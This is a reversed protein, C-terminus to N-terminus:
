VDSLSLTSLAMAHSVAKLKRRVLNKKLQSSIYRVIRSLFLSDFAFYETDSKIIPSSLLLFPIVLWGVSNPKNKPKKGFRQNKTYM